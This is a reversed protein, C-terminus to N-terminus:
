GGREGLTQATKPELRRVVIIEVSDRDLDRRPVPVPNEGFCQAAADVKARNGGAPDDYRQIFGDPFFIQEIEEGSEIAAGIRAEVEGFLNKGRDIRSIILPKAAGRWKQRMRNEARVM